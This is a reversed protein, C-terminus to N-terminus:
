SKYVLYLLASSAIVDIVGCGAYIASIGGFGLILIAAISIIAYGITIILINKLEFFKKQACIICLVALITIFFIDLVFCIMYAAGARDTMDCVNENYSLTGFIAPPNMWFVVCRILAAATFVAGMIVAFIRKLHIRLVGMIFLTIVSAVFVILWKPMSFLFKDGFYYDKLIDYLQGSVDSYGSAIRIAWERAVDFILSTFFLPIILIWGLNSEAKYITMKPIGSSKVIASALLSVLILLIGAILVHLKILRVVTFQTDFEGLYIKAFVKHMFKNKELVYALILYIGTVVDFIIATNLCIDTGRIRFFVGAIGVITTFLAIGFIIQYIANMGKYYVLNYVSVASADSTVGGNNLDKIIKTFVTSGAGFILILALAAMLVAVSVVRILVIQNKKMKM